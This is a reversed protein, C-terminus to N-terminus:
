LTLNKSNNIKLEIIKNVLEKNLKGQEKFIATYIIIMAVHSVSLFFIWITLQENTM